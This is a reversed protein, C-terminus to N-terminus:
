FPWWSWEARAQAVALAAASPRKGLGAAEYIEDIVAMNRVADDAGHGPPAAGDRVAAAFAALQLDFTTTGAPASHAKEYRQRGGDPRVGIAHYLFPFLYNTVDLTGRECRARLHFGFPTTASSRLTATAGGAFALEAEAAVDARSGPSDEVMAARVVREPEGLLERAVSVAYCGQGMFNGGGLAVDMKASRGSAGAGLGLLSRLGDGSIMGAGVELARVPGLEGDEAVLAKVRAVLAHHRWHYGEVLVRRQRRALEALARAEDANNTLPKELLVHKGARLAADAWAFHQGNVLAIYVAEVEPDALM